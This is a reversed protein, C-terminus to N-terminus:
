PRRQVEAADRRRPWRAILAVVALAFALRLWLVGSLDAGLLLVLLSDEILSHCLGLLCMVLFVERPPLLGSRSERILLGGGFSLGLTLGIVTANAADRHIGVLRLAPNLLRHMLREVGLARLLRLLTMLAAIILLVMGLMVLQDLAWAALSDSGAAPQWRLQAPQQLLALGGYLLNLLAGLALAGGVRLALTVRWSVGCARAIAGEVPLAHSVLMMSALVTVQAVSLPDHVVLSAYVAIGTYLNTLLTTAWVIGMTDPLGVLVMTPSLLWALGEGVGALELAKVVILAPVMVKLLALYVAWVEAALQRAQALLRRTSAQM